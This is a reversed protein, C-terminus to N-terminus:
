FSHLHSQEVINWKTADLILGTLIKSSAAWNKELQLSNVFSEIIKTNKVWRITRRFQHVNCHSFRSSDRYAPFCFLSFSWFIFERLAVDRKKESENKLHFASTNSLCVEKLISYITYHNILVWPTELGRKLLLTISRRHFLTYKTKIPKAERLM